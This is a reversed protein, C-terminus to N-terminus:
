KLKKRTEKRNLRQGTFKGNLIRSKWHDLYTEANLVDFSHLESFSWSSGSDLFIFDSCLCVLKKKNRQGVMQVTAVEKYTM